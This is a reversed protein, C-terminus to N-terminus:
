LAYFLIRFLLSGILLSILQMMYGKTTLDGSDGVSGPIKHIVNDNYIDSVIFIFAIAVALMMYWDFGYIKDTLISMFDDPRSSKEDPTFEELEEYDVSEFDSM